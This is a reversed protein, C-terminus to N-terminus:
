GARHGSRTDGRSFLAVREAKAKVEHGEDVRCMACACSVVLVAGGRLNVTSVPSRDVGGERWM